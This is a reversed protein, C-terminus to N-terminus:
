IGDNKEPMIDQQWGSGPTVLGDELTRPYPDITPSVTPSYASPSYSSPAYGAPSYGTPSYSAPPYTAPSYGGPYGQPRPNAAASSSKVFRAALVGLAFAGGLFLAPSRRAFQEVDGILEGV